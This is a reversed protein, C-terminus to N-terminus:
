HLVSELTRRLRAISESLDGHEEMHRRGARGMGRRLDPDRALVSMREAMGEWDGEEVLFGSRGHVVQDLIGAHRTSVIPLASAAAEAVAVPWGEEDGNPATVSHQVFAGSAAMEAQVRSNPQEGLFTVREALGLEAVLAECAARLPGEGVLRLTVGECEAACRAFARITDLPSKKEVLRGVAVFRCPQNSVAESERFERLPVGCPIISIKGDPCGLARLREAQTRSVVVCAAARAVLRRCSFRYVARRYLSSLDFGHFHVVLPVGASRCPRMARLGSLGFQALVVDVGRERLLNRFAREERRPMVDVCGHRAANWAIRCRGALSRGDFFSGASPLELCEVDQTVAEGKVLREAWVSSGLAQAQRLIFTQSPEPFTQVLIAIRM